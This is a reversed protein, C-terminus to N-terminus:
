KQEFWIAVAPVVKTPRRGSRRRENALRNAYSLSKTITTAAPGMWEGAKKYMVGYFGNYNNTKKM